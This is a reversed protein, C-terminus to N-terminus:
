AQHQEECGALNLLLTSISTENRTLTQLLRLPQANVLLHEPPITIMKMMTM